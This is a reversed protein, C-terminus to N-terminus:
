TYRLVDLLTLIDLLCSCSPLSVASEFGFGVEAVAQDEFYPEGVHPKDALVAFLAAIAHM